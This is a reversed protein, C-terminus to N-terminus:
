IKADNLVKRASEIDRWLHSGKYLNVDQAILTASNILLTLAEKLLLAKEKYISALHHDFFEDNHQKWLSSNVCFENYKCQERHPGNGCNECTNSMNKRKSQSGVSVDLV